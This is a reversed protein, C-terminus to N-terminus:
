AWSPLPFATSRLHKELSPLLARSVPGGSHMASYSWTAREPLWIMPHFCSGAQAKLQLVSFFNGSVYEATGSEPNGNFSIEMRGTDAYAVLDPFASGQRLNQYAQNSFASSEVMGPDAKGPLGDLSSMPQRQGLISWRLQRLQEPHPVPLTEFLATRTMSFIATNAGIGLALSGVAIATFGPSKALMRMAYRLDARLDDWVRLGLSARMEEKQVTVGGFEIRARQAAEEPAVGRRILDQTYSELHFALEEDMERELRSRSTVARLWSELRVFVSM